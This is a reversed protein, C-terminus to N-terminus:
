AVLSTFQEFLTKYNDNDNKLQGKKIMHLIEVGKITQKAGHFSKFGLCPKTRKKIFRHDQEIIPITLYLTM